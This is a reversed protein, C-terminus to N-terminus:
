GSPDRPQVAEAPRSASAETSSAAPMPHLRELVAPLGPMTEIGQKAAWAELSPLVDPEVVIRYVTVSVLVAPFMRTAWLGLIVVGQTYSDGEAHATTVFSVLLALAALPGLLGEFLSAERVIEGRRPTVLRLDLAGALWPGPLLSTLVAALLLLPVTFLKPGFTRADADSLFYVIESIVMLDIALPGLAMVLTDRFRVRRPKPLRVYFGSKGLFAQHGRHTLRALGRVVPPLLWVLVPVLAIVFFDIAEGRVGVFRATTPVYQAVLPPFVVLLLFVAVALVVLCGVVHFRGVRTVM